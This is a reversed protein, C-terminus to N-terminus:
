KQEPTQMFWNWAELVIEFPVTHPGDFEHYYVDYHDHQLRSVIIRSCRNIPLVTDHIGHAIYIRPQGYLHTPSMFGPSFALIHTFLDGNTLGLSLAYSAGDSFGGIALHTQDVAYRSFTQALARDIFALDPGYHHEEIIDWTSQRSDPILLLLGAQELAPLFYSSSNQATGGAGHLMLALPLPHDIHYSTPVYMLGDRSTDLGLPYLGTPPHATTPPVARATLRGQLHSDRNHQDM